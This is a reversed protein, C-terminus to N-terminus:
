APVWLSLAASRRLTISMYQLLTLDTALRIRNAALSSTNLSAVTLLNSAHVNTITVLQGDLGGSIGTLTSNGSTPNGDLFGTGTTLAFNNVNGAALTATQLDAAGSLISYALWGTLVSDPDNTNAALTNYFFTTPTVASQVIAGVNYGTVATSVTSNYAYSNGASMWAIHASLAYLIGNMDLGNPPIGNAIIPTRTLPPFGLDYSALGAGPDTVPITNRGGSTAFAEVITPPAPTSM